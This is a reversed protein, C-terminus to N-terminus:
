YPLNRGSPTHVNVSKPPTSLSSDLEIEVQCLFPGFLSNAIVITEPITSLPVTITLIDSKLSFEWSPLYAAASAVMEHYMYKSENDDEDDLIEFGTSPDDIYWEGEEEESMKSVRKPVASLVAQRFIRGIMVM